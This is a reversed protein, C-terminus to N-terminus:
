LAVVQSTALVPGTPLGTPSGGAPELSVAIVPKDPMTLGEPMPMRARGTAPMLGLSHPKGDGGIVWLQLNKRTEDVAFGTNNIVAIERRQAFVSVLWTSGSKADQLMAVLEPKAEAVVVPAPTPAPQRYLQVALAVAAVSAALAWNRWLRVGRAPDDIGGRVPLTTVSANGIRHEIDTWVVARPRVPRITGLLPALHVEWFRVEERLEARTWLLREFRRRAPGRLTGFTYEAALLRQLKDDDYNM